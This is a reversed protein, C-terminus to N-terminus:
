PHYNIWICCFSKSELRLIIQGAFPERQDPQNIFIELANGASQYLESDRPMGGGSCISTNAKGAKDVIFGYSVCPQKIPNDTQGLTSTALQLMSIKINQGGPAVTYWPQSKTGCNRKSLPSTSIHVPNTSVSISCSRGDDAVVLCQKQLLAVTLLFQLKCQAKYSM